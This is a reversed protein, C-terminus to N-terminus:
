QKIIKSSHFKSLYFPCSRMMKQENSACFSATGQKIFSQVKERVKECLSKDKLCIYM